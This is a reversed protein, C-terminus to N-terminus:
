GVFLLADLLDKKQMSREISQDSTAAITIPAGSKFINPSFLAAQPQVGTKQALEADPTAIAAALIAGQRDYANDILTYDSGDTAGDYNFDGNFWGTAPTVIASDLRSYDSGDVQGNLNTDGYYTFKILVDNLAVPQNDFTSYLATGNLNNSIAGLATLFTRGPRGALNAFTQSLTSM